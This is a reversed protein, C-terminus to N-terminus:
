PGVLVGSADRPNALWDGLLQVCGFPDHDPTSVMGFALDRNRGGTLRGTSAASFDLMAGDDPLVTFSVDGISEAGSFRGAHGLVVHLAVGGRPADEAYSLLHFDPWGDLNLDGADGPGQARSTGPTLHVGSFRADAEGLEVQRALESQACGYFLYAATESRVLIDDAGDRDLDGISSPGLAGVLLTANRGLSQQGTFRAPGGPVLMTYAQGGPGDGPPGTAAGPDVVGVLLDAHGDANVDGARAVTIGLPGAENTELVANAAAWAPQPGLVRKTGGYFVLVRPTSGRVTLAFDDFGDADLDGVGTAVVTPEDAALSVDLTAISEPHQAADLDIAGHLRIPTGYILYTRAVRDTPVESSIEAEGEGPRRSLVDLTVLLDAQGDRDLDGANTVEVEGLAAPCALVADAEGRDLQITAPLKGRGYILHVAPSGEYDGVIALDDYGDHDLDGTTALSRGLNSGALRPGPLENAHVRVLSRIPSGNSAKTVVQAPPPVTTSPGPSACLGSPISGSDNSGGASVEGGDPLSGVAVRGGADSGVMSRGANCETGDGSAGGPAAEGRGAFGVVLDPECGVAALSLVSARWLRGVTTRGRPQM